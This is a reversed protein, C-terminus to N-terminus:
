PKGDKTWIVMGENVVPNGYQEHNKKTVERFWKPVTAWPAVNKGMELVMGQKVLEYVSV